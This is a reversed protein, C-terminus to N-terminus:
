LNSNNLDSCCVTLNVITGNCNCAGPFPQSYMLDEQIFAILLKSSYSVFFGMLERLFSSPMSNAISSDVAQENGVVM